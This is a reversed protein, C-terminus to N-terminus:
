PVFHLKMTMIEVLIKHRFACFRIEEGKCNTFKAQIPFGQNVYIVNAYAM